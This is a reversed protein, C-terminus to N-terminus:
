ILNFRFVLGIITAVIAVIGGYTRVKMSFRRRAEEAEARKRAEYRYDEVVQMIDPIKNLMPEIHNIIKNDGAIHDEFIDLKSEIKSTHVNFDARLNFVDEQVKDVKSELRGM